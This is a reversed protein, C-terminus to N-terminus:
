RAFLQVAWIRGSTDQWAGSGLHTWDGLMNALHGSSGALASFIASVSGGVGINEAAGSWPPLLRGLNSHGLSGSEGMKKAWWRAESDLAGSRALGSLGNGARLNNISSVFQSAAEDQYGGQVGPDTTTTASPPATTTPTSPPPAPKTGVSSSPTGPADQTAAPALTTSTTQLRLDLPITDDVTAPATGSRATVATAEVVPGETTTALSETGGDAVAELTAPSPGADARVQEGGPSVVFILSGVLAAATLSAYLRSETM